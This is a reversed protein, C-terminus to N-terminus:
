RGLRIRNEEHVIVSRDKLAQWIAPAEAESLVSLESVLLSARVIATQYWAPDAQAIAAKTAVAKQKQEAELAAVDGKRGASIAEILNITVEITAISNSYVSVAKPSTLKIAGRSVASKVSNIFTRAKDFGSAPLGQEVLKVIEDVVILGSDTLEIATKLGDESLVGGDRFIVFLDGLADLDYVAHASYFAKKYAADGGRRACGTFGVVGSAAMLTLMNRRTLQNQM